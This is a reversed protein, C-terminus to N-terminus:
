VGAGQESFQRGCLEALIREREERARQAADAAQRARLINEAEGLKAIWSGFTIIPAGSFTSDYVYSDNERVYYKESYYEGRGYSVSFRLGLGEFRAQCLTKVRPFIEAYFRAKVARDFEILQDDSMAALVEVDFPQSLDLAQAYLQLPSLNELETELEALGLCGDADGEDGEAATPRPIEFGFAACIERAEPTDHKFFCRAAGDTNTGYVVAVGRDGSNGYADLQVSQISAPNIRQDGLAIFQDAINKINM